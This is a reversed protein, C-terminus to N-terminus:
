GTDSTWSLMFNGARGGDSDDPGFYYEMPGCNKSTSRKYGNQILETEKLRAQELSGFYVHTREAM